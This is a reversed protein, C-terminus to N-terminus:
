EPAEWLTKCQLFAWGSHQTGTVGEIEWVVGQWIVRKVPTVRQWRIKFVAYGEAKVDGKLYEKGPTEFVNAWPSSEDAWGPVDAGSEDPTMTPAQIVIQQDLDGANNM